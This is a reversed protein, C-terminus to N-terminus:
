RSSRRPVTLELLCEYGVIAVTPPTCPPSTLHLRMWHVSSSIEKADVVSFVRARALNSLHEALTLMQFMPRQIAKNITRSPELCVRFKTATEVIITNSCWPTPEEVRALIGQSVYRDLTEKEKARKAIPRRHIPMNVPTVSRDVVFSVPPQLSGLGRFNTNYVKLIADKTLAGPPPLSTPYLSSKSTESLLEPKLHIRKEWNAFMILLLTSFGWRRRM